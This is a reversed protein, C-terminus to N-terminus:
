IALYLITISSISSSNFLMAELEKNALYKQYNPLSRSTKSGFCGSTTQLVWKSSLPLIAAFISLAM